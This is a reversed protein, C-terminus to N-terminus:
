EPEGRGDSPRRSRVGVDELLVDHVDTIHDVNKDVPVGADTAQTIARIRRLYEEVDRIASYWALEYVNEPGDECPGCINDYDTWRSTGHICTPFTYGRGGANWRRGDPETRWNPARGDGSRYWADVEAAYDAERKRLAKVRQIARLEAEAQARDIDLGNMDGYVFKIAKFLGGPKTTYLSIM